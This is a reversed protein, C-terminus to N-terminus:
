RFSFREALHAVLEDEREPAFLPSWRDEVKAWIQPGDPVGMFHPAHTVATAYSAWPTYERTAAVATRGRHLVYGGHNSPFEVVVGGARWISEQMWLCPSGHNVWPAIERRAMWDRRVAVFSAQADPYRRSSKRLEGAFAADHVTIVSALTLITEPNRFIVDPDCFLMLNTRTRPAQDREARELARLGTRIGRAHNLFHRNEVVSVRPVAAALAALFSAARDRSANDVIVIRRVLGLEQQEALTLLMLKLYRTTSRNVTVLAFRPDGDYPDEHAIPGIRHRTMAWAQDAWMELHRRFANLRDGSQVM